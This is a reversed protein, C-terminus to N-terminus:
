RGRAGVHMDPASIPMMMDALTHVTITGPCFCSMAALGRRCLTAVRSIGQGGLLARYVVVVHGERDDEDHQAAM